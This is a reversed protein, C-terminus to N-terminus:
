QTQPHCISPTIHKHTTVTHRSQTRYTGDGTAYQCLFHDFGDWLAVNWVVIEEEVISELCTAHYVPNCLCGSCAQVTVQLVNQPVWSCDRYSKFHYKTLVPNEGCPENGHIHHTCFYIKKCKWGKMTNDHLISYWLLLSFFYMTAM